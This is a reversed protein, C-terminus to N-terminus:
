RETLVQVLLSAGKSAPHYNKRTAQDAPVALHARLFHLAPM